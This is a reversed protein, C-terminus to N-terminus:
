LTGSKNKRLLIKGQSNNQSQLSEQYTNVGSWQPQHNASNEFKKEELQGLKNTFDLLTRKASFHRQYSLM